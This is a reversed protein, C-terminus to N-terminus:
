TSPPRIFVLATITALIGGAFLTAIKWLQLRAKAAGEFHALASQMSNIDYAMVVAIVIFFLALIVGVTRRDM